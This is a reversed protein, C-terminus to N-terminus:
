FDIERSPIVGFEQLGDRLVAGGKKLKRSNQIRNGTFALRGEEDREMLKNLIFKGGVYGALETIEVVKRGEGTRETHIMIEIAQAIQSRVADVDLPMAMLYMTELRKLMGFVSNGHGTSMSGAHGTNMAQLMDLVERGRVEGVIIRDPRMRLSTRILRSTDVAGKGSVNSYRCEMRVLNEISNLQLEASDEIVIVREDRGIYRSLANLMTTKGSSTGGSVFLNYRCKVLAELLRGAEATLTGGAILEEMKMYNDSFKRITLIPGNVAITRFVGNVRSGDALRADVIPNLENIERHVQAAIRRIVEELEGASDFSLEYRYIRGSKEYFIDEPGNVMIESVKADDMLPTLIGLKTRTKYFIKKIIRDLAAASMVAADRDAFVLDAIIEMAKVDIDEGDPLHSIAERAQGTARAELAQETKLGGLAQETKPDGLARETELLKSINYTIGMEYIYYFLQAANAVTKTRCIGGLVSTRRGRPPRAAGSPVM